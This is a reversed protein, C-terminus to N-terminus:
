IACVWSKGRYSWYDQVAVKSRYTTRQLIRFVRIPPHSNM